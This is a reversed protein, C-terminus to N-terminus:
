DNLVIKGTKCFEKGCIKWIYLGSQSLKVPISIIQETNINELNQSFLLQGQVSFINLQVSGEYLNQIFKLQLNERTSPNTFYFFDAMKNHYSSVGVPAKSLIPVQYFSLAGINRSNKIYPGQYITSTNHYYIEPLYTLFNGGAGTKLDLFITDKSTSIENIVYPLGDLYFYDKLRINVNAVTTDGPIIFEQVGPEFILAIRNKDSSTYFAYKLNPASIDPLDQKNYFDREVLPTLWEALKKYGNVSYHCGDHEPLGNTSMVTIDQYSKPLNRQVERVGSNDGTGCGHHIQVVYIKQLKPYDNKWDQYLAQFNEFYQPTANSEGQYWFLIKASHALKSQNARYLLSGYIGNPEYPNLDNRQHQQITTGGVGGNIVCVPVKHNNVINKALQMGWAGINPGGGYGTAIAPTFFTDKKDQSYNLGFTKIFPDSDTSGGFISNSQGNILIVDGCLLHDRIYLSSDRDPAQATLEIRYDSLGSLLVPSFEYLAKQENYNLKVSTKSKLEKNEFLKLHVSDFHADFCYGKLDFKCLDNEDRAYFHHNGPVSVLSSDLIPPGPIKYETMLKKQISDRTIKPLLGSFLIICSINGNYFYSRNYAGIFLTSDTNTPCFASDAFKGNVYFAGNQTSQNYEAIILAPDLGPDVSSVVQSNFNGQHLMQPNTNGALWLTRNAGGLINYSPANTKVILFLTYDKQVPFVPPLDLYASSGNLQIAPLDNIGNKILKPRANQNTQIANIGTTPDKWSVVSSDTGLSVGTNANLYFIPKFNQQGNTTLSYLFHVIILFRGVSIPKNFL